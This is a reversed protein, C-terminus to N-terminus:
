GREKKNFFFPFLWENLSWWGEEEMKDYVFCFISFSFLPLFAIEVDDCLEDQFAFYRIWRMWFGIM